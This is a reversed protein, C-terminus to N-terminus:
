RSYNIYAKTYCSRLTQTNPGANYNYKLSEDNLLLLFDYLWEFSVFLINLVSQYNIIIDISASSFKVIFKVPGLDIM